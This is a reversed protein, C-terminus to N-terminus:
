EHTAAMRALERDLLFLSRKDTGLLGIKDVIGQVLSEEERQEDIFWQLFNFTTYDKEEWSLSALEHIKKTVLKEHALIDNFIESVSKFEIPPTDIKGVLAMAGVENVYDFFRHMHQLEEAAHKKLFAATGSLANSAAWASMQLYVNSSFYEFNLQDNLKKIMKKTAM